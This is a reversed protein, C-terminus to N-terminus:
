SAPAGSDHYESAASGLGDGTLVDSGESDLAEVQLAIQRQVVRHTPSGWKQENIFVQRQIYVSGSPLPLEIPAEDLEVPELRM